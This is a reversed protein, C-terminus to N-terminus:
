GGRGVRRLGDGLGKVMALLSRFELPDLDELSALFFASALVRV